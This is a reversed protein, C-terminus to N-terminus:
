VKITKVLKKVHDCSKKFAAKEAKDLKVEVVKEVGKKGIVAPVGVWLGKVGYEGNCHAAVPLVRKRDLVISEVMEVASSAPAYYASGTKLLGVIEAGGDRTRQVIEDIRKKPILDTIPIGAMTSYRVLPVMSDGHGGLVMATVDQASCGLEDALFSRFRSTDLVGAMGMVRAPPFKSVKAAVYVMADLPNSVIILIAKPSYKKVQATVGGVIETNKKILDDRSMGPKRPLGATIVVIDSNRTAAYSNAGVTQGDFEYTPRVQSLDLSKGQPVGPIIDVLVVDAWGKMAILHAATAGVNGAGVVTVKMRAM